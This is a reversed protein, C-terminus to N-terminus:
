SVEGINFFLQIYSFTCILFILHFINIKLPHVQYISNKLIKEEKGQKVLTNFIEATYSSGKPEIGLLGHREPMSFKRRNKDLNIFGSWKLTHHWLKSVVALVSKLQNIVKPFFFYKRSSSLQEETLLLQLVFLSFFLIVFM